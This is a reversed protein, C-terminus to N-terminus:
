STKQVHFGIGWRAASIQIQHAEIGSSVSFTTNYIFVSLQLLGISAGINVTYRMKCAERRHANEQTSQIIKFCAMTVCGRSSM